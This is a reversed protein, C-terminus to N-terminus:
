GRMYLLSLLFMWLLPINLKALILTFLDFGIDNISTSGGHLLKTYKVIYAYIDTLGNDLTVQANNYAAIIILFVIM